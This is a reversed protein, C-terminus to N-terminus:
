DPLDDKVGGFMNDSIRQLFGSIKLYVLRFVRKVFDDLFSWVLSIPWWSMTRMIKAKNDRVRPSEALTRGDGRTLSLLALIM